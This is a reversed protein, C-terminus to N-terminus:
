EIYGLARLKEMTEADREETRKLQTGVLQDVAELMEQIEPRPPAGLISLPVSVEQGERWEWRVVGSGPADRSLLQTNRGYVSGVRYRPRDIIGAARAELNAPRDLCLGRSWSRPSRGTQAAAVLSIGEGGVPAPIGALEALTAAVDTLEV